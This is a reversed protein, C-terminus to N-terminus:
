HSEAEIMVKVVVEAIFMVRQHITSDLLMKSSPEPQDTEPLDVIKTGRVDM